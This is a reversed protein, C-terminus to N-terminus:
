DAPATWRVGDFSAFDRDFTVITAGREIALAAPHSDTTLNGATGASRHL